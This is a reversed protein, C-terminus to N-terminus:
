ENSLGLSSIIFTFYEWSAHHNVMYFIVSYASSCQHHHSKFYISVEPNAVTPWPLRETAIEKLYKTCTGSNVCWLIKMKPMAWQVVMQQKSGVIGQMDWIPHMTCQQVVAIGSWRTAMKPSFYMRQLFSLCRLWFCGFMCMRFKVSVPPSWTQLVSTSLITQFSAFKVKSRTLSNYLCLKPLPTGQPPRWPPQTRKSKGPFFILAKYSNGM